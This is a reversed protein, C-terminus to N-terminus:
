LWPNKQEESNKISPMEKTKLLDSKILSTLNKFVTKKNITKQLVINKMKQKNSNDPSNKIILDQNESNM